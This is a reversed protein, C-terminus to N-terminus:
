AEAGPEGAKNDEFAKIIFSPFVIEYWKQAAQLTWFRKNFSIFVPRRMVGWEDGKVDAAALVFRL